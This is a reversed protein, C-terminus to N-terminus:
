RDAASGPLSSERPPDSRVSRILFTGFLRDILPFTSAYNANFLRPDHSHHTHHFAPTALLHSLPGLEIRVNAHLFATYMRRLVILAGLGSLPAGLLFGPIAAAAAHLAVDIPHQRWAKLWDLQQPAHHVAHFRWLCPVEHMLRHMWYTAFEAGLFGLLLRGATPARAPLVSSLATLLPEIAGRLVLVGLLLYGLDALWTRATFRPAHRPFLLELPWLILGLVGVFVAVKALTGLAAHM